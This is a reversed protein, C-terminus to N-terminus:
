RVRLTFFRKADYLTGNYTVSVIATYEGSAAAPSPRVALVLEEQANRGIEVPSRAVIRWGNTDAPTGSPGVMDIRVAFNQADLRNDIGLGVTADKGAPADIATPYVAVLQGQTMMRALADHQDGSLQANLDQAKGVIHWVLAVGGAILIIGLIM